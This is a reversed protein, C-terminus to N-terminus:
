LERFYGSPLPPNPPWKIPLHRRPEEELYHPGVLIRYNKKELKIVFLFFICKINFVANDNVTAYAVLLNQVLGSLNQVSKDVKYSGKFEGSGSPKRDNWQEIATGLGQWAEWPLNWQLEIRPRQWIAFVYRTGLSYFRSFRSSERSM